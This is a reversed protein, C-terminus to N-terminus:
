WGRRPLAAQGARGSLEVLRSVPLEQGVGSDALISPRRAEDTRWRGVHGTPRQSGHERIHRRYNGLEKPDVSGISRQPPPLIATPCIPPLGLQTFSSCVHTERRSPGAPPPSPFDGAPGTGHCLAEMPRHNRKDPGGASQRTPKKTSVPHGPTAPREQRPDVGGATADHPSASSLTMTTSSPMRSEARASGARASHHGFSAHVHRGPRRRPATPDPRSDRCNGSASPQQPTLRRHRFQSRHRDSLAPPRQKIHTTSGRNPRKPSEAIINNFVSNHM